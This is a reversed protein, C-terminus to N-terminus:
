LAASARGLFDALPDILVVTRSPYPEFFVSREAAKGDCLTHSKARGRFLPLISKGSASRIAFLTRTPPRRTLPETTSLWSIVIGALDITDRLVHDDLQPPKLHPSPLTATPPRQHHRPSLITDGNGPRRSRTCTPCCGRRPTM